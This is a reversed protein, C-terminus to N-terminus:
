QGPLITYLTTALTYSSAVRSVSCVTIYWLLYWDRHFNVIQRWDLFTDVYSYCAHAM